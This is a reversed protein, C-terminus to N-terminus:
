RSSLKELGISAREGDTMAYGSRGWSVGERLVRAPTGAVVVRPPVQGKVLARTGVIAGMGVRETSLLMADQGLWVHRELVTTVPPKNIRAGTALDHMAHMDYNRIWVGGSILADDGIVVGAGEGELEISLGVASAGVGWFLFQRHSRMFVDGLAVYANGIDNFLVASDTGLLRINAHCNGGWALNDFFLVCNRGSAQVRINGLRRSPDTLVVTLEEGTAQIGLQRAADSQAPLLTFDRTLLADGRIDTVRADLAALLGSEVASSIGPIM